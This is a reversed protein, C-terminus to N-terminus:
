HPVLCISWPFSAYTFYIGCRGTYILSQEVSIGDIPMDSACFFTPKVWTERMSRGNIILSGSVKMRRWLNNGIASVLSSKGSNEPGVVAMFARCSVCSKQSSRFCVGKSAVSQLQWIMVANRAQESQWAVHCPLGALAKDRSPRSIGLTAHLLSQGQNPM